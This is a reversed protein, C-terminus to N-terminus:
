YFRMYALWRNCYTYIPCNLRDTIVPSIRTLCTILKKFADKIGLQMFHLPPKKTEFGATPLLLNSHAIPHISPSNEDFNKDHIMCILKRKRCFNNCVCHNIKHKCNCIIIRECLLHCFM